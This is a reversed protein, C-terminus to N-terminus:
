NEQSDRICARIPSQYHNIWTTTEKRTISSNVIAETVSWTISWWNKNCYERTGMTPIYSQYSPMNKKNQCRYVTSPKQKNRRRRPPTPWDTPNWKIRVTPLSESRSGPHSCGHEHEHEHHDELVSQPCCCHICEDKPELIELFLIRHIIRSLM